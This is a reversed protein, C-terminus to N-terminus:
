PKTIGRDLMRHKIMMRAWTPLTGVFLIALRNTLGNIYQKRGRLLRNVARRAFVDPRAIAGLRLALRKLNDPLGFLDTAIGGPCAAMVKVGYDRMEYHLSRTFTRIYAKTSAYMSLGPMPMWCSMSSMNLIYGSGRKKFYRAFEISLMTAARVHLDIFANIKREPIDIAPAFSFIGANNILIDPDINLNAMYGWIREMADLRCLDLTMPYTPVGYADRIAEAADHLPADDISIMLLSAGREALTKCFELGIGGSAGTVVALKGKLSKM